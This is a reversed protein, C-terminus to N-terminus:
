YQACAGAASAVLAPLLGVQSSPPASALLPMM